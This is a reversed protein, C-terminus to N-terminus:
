GSDSRFLGDQRLQVDTIDNAPAVRQETAFAHGLPQAHACYRWQLEVGNVGGNQPFPGVFLQPALDAVLHPSSYAFSINQRIRM